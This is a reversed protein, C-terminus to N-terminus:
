ALGARLAELAAIAQDKDPEGMPEASFKAREFLDTLARGPERAVRELVRQLFELPAEHAQRPTGSRALASEMRSYCAVIARRVDGERRLDDLSEDVAHLVANEGDEVAVGARRRRLVIAFLAGGVVLILLTAGAVAELLHTSQEGGGAAGNVKGGGGPDSACAIGPDYGRKQYWSAPAQPCANRAGGTYFNYHEPVLWVFLAFAVLSAAAIGLLVTKTRRTKGSGTVYGALLLGCLAVLVGAVGLVTLTASGVLSESGRRNSIQSTSAVAIVALLAVGVVTRASASLRVVGNM